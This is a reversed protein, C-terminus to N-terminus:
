SAARSEYRLAEEIEETPCGYDTALSSVSDGAKHREAVISTPVGTGAICPRGARIRPDIAVLQPSDKISHPDGKASPRTFPFLRIPIHSEDWEIRQLHAILFEKLCMQGDESIEVLQGFREIFLSRGDTLMQRDLLPHDSKFTRSLYDIAKRVPKLQVQHVRRISAIVHLEVLNLFSLLEKQKDAPTILPPWIRRQEGVPYTRGFAWDRVTRRPLNLYYAAESVFYNPSEAPNAWGSPLPRSRTQAPM